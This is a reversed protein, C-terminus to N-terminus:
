MQRAEDVIATLHAEEKFSEAYIKYHNPNLLGAWHTVTHAANCPNQLPSGRRVSTGFSALQNSGNLDPRRSYYESKLLSVDILLGHPAPRGAALPFASIQPNIVSPM